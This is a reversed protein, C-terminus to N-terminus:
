IQSTEFRLEVSGKKKRGRKDVTSHRIVFIAAGASFNWKKKLHQECAEIIDLEQYSVIAPKNKTAKRFRM